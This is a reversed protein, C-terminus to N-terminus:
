VATMHQQVGSARQLGAAISHSIETHISTRSISAADYVQVCSCVAAEM